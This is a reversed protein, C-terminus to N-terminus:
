TRFLEEFTNVQQQVAHGGDDILIDVHPVKAKLGRLSEREEQNALMIEIQDGALAVCEPNIDVSIIGERTAWFLEGCEGHVARAWM